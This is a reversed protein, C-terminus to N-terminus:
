EDEEVEAITKLIKPWDRAVGVEILSSLYTSLPVGRDQAITRAKRALTTNIKVVSLKMEPKEPKKKAMVGSGM